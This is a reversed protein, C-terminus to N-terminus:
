LLSYSLYSAVTVRGGSETAGVIFFSSYFFLYIFLLLTSYYISTVGGILNGIWGGVELHLMRLLHSLKIGYM